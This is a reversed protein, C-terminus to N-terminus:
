GDKVKVVVATMDDLLHEGGSFERVARYLGDIIGGASESLHARVTRLVRDVGFMNRNSFGTELIGDTILVLADGPFLRVPASVRYTPDPSAAM